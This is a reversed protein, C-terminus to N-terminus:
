IHCMEVAQIFGMGCFSLLVAHQECARQTVSHSYVFAYLIALMKCVSKMIQQLFFFLQSNELQFRIITSHQRGRPECHLTELVCKGSTSKLYLSQCNHLNHGDKFHGHQQFLNLPQRVKSLQNYAINIPIYNVEFAPFINHWTLDDM